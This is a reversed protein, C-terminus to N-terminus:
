LPKDGHKGPLLCYYCRRTSKARQLGNAHTLAARFTVKRMPRCEDSAWPCGNRFGNEASIWSDGSKTIPMSTRHHCKTSRTAISTIGKDLCGKEEVRQRVFQRRRSFCTVFRKASQSWSVGRHKTRRFYRDHITLDGSRGLPRDEGRLWLSERIRACSRHVVHMAIETKRLRSVLM